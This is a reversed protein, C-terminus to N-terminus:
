AGEAMIVSGDRLRMHNEALVRSVTKQSIKETGADTLTDAIHQQSRWDSRELMTLLLADHRGKRQETREETGNRGPRDEGLIVGGDTIEFPYAMEAVNLQNGFAILTRRVEGSGKAKAADVRLFHRAWAEITTSGLPSSKPAGDEGPKGAHHLLLVAIGYREMISVNDLVPGVPGDERLSQGRPMLRTLNDIILFDIGERALDAADAIWREESQSPRRTCLLVDNLAPNGNDRARRKTENQQGPDLAWFAVRRQERVERGLWPEGTALSAAIGLALHSKGAEPRGFMITATEHILGDIIFPPEKPEPLDGIRVWGRSPDACALTTVSL